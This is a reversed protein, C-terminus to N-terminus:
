VTPPARAQFAPRKLGAPDLHAVEVQAHASVAPRPLCPPYSLLFLGTLHILLCSHDHDAAPEEDEGPHTAGAPQLEGLVAHEKPPDVHVHGFSATFQIALAFLALWSSLRSRSRVWQM